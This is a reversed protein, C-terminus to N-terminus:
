DKAEVPEPKGLPLTPAKPAQAKAPAMAMDEATLEERKPREDVVKEGGGEVTGVEAM